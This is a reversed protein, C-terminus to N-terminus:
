NLREPPSVNAGAEMMPGGPKRRYDGNSPDIFLVAPDTVVQNEEGMLSPDSATMFINNQINAPNPTRLLDIVNNRIILGEPLSAGTQVFISTGWNANTDTNVLTNNEFLLNQIKNDGIQGTSWMAVSVANKSESDIVNNSFTMNKASRNIAIVNQVYNGEVLIDACGEYFNIGSSHMGYHNLVVNNRLIGDKSEYHRIGSGSNTDIRNGILQYRQIRNVYIGVTWGPCHHIYCNEVVIDDSHNLSIGSQGSMFRIECDAIRVHAPRTTGKGHTAVGGNGGAYRQILFGRVEVHTVSPPITVATKLVPYGINVPQGNELNQPRFYIRTRGGELPRLCWEGPLNILKPSNYLAYKSTDYIRSKFHPLHLQHTEPSYKKIQGFYVHNNGGHVGIFMDDFWHSDTQTLREEDILSTSLDHKIVNTGDATFAAIQQLKTWRNPPNTHHLKFTIKRAQIPSPLKFRQMETLTPDIKATYAPKGDALFTIQEPAPTSSPRFLTVGIEAISATVDMEVSIAGGDLPEIVPANGGNTIAILPLARNGKSGPEYDIQHPYSDTLPQEPVVYFEDPLDPYFPDSPKPSQAIPLVQREGDILFIRQWPAQRAPNGDRHLIFKQQSFNSSLDLDIDAYMIAQWQPNGGVFDASPVAQWNTINKAGDLIARGKGFTGSTNGDLIIPAGESGSANLEIEGCYTIGGKFHIRDDPQLQISSPKATANSDGPSHKWASQPSRGDATDNGSEYDIYYTAALCQSAVSFAFVLCLLRTSQKKSFTM